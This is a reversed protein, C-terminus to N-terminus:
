LGVGVSIGGWRHSKGTRFEKSLFSRSYSLYFKKLNLIMGADTQVTVRSIDGASITYLNKRNFIGGQLSADYGIFNFKSQGYLYFEVRKKNTVPLFRKIFKGAMFNMGGSLKNNLTGLRAEAVANLLFYNGLSLVQKEYQIQYNIIIDNQIQHQWGLPPENKLLRHIGSHIEKGLAAPGMVGMSFSTSIHQHQMSDTQILLTKLSLNANFPRDGYLIADSATSTPTYGFLNISVGYQPNTTFPKWLLKTFPFRKISPHVYDLTIGQSYYKDSNAFYDNDYHFRFYANSNITRFTSSIDTRQAIATVVTCSLFVVIIIKCSFHNVTTPVFLEQLRIYISVALKGYIGIRSYAKM